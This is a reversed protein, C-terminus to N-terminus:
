QLAKAHTGDRGIAKEATGHRYEVREEVRQLLCVVVSPHIILRISSSVSPHFSAEPRGKSYTINKWVKNLTCVCVCVCVCM